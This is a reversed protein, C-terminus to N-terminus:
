VVGSYPFYATLKGTGFQTADRLMPSENLFSVQLMSLKGQLRVARRSESEAGGLFPHEM